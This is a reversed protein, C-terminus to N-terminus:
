SVIFLFRSTAGRVPLTSQFLLVIDKGDRAFRREGCPSRPNFNKPRPRKVVKWRTAGRVPLTSQFGAARGPGASLDGTAGRVPLTSQFQITSVGFSGLRTAGRVPLTSQFKYTNALKRGNGNTAGRVPLTSQFVEIAPCLALQQLREGCPSRPNFYASPSAATSSIRTAGRM